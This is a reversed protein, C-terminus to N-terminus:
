RGKSKKFGRGKPKQLHILWEGRELYIESYAAASAAM